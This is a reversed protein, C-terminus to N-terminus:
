LVGDPLYQKATEQNMLLAETSGVFSTEVFGLHRWVAKNDTPNLQVGVILSGHKYLLHNNAAKILERIEGKGRSEESLGAFTIIAMNETGMLQEVAIGGKDEPLSFTWCLAPKAFDTPEVNHNEKVQSSKNYFEGITVRAQRYKDFDSNANTIIVDNM